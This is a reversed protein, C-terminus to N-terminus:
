PVTFRSKLNGGIHWAITAVSNDSTAAAQALQQASLQRFAGEAMLKYRRYEAEISEVIVRM